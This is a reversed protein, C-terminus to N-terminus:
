QPLVTSCVNSDNLYKNLADDLNTKFEVRQTESLLCTILGEVMITQTFKCKGNVVGHVQLKESQGPMMPSPVSGLFPDCKSIANAFDEKVKSSSAKEQASQSISVKINMGPSESKTITTVDGNAKSTTVTAVKEQGPKPYSVSSKDGNADTKTEEIYIVGDKTYERKTVVQAALSLSFGSM